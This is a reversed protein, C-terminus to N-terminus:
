ASWVKGGMALCRISLDYDPFGTVGGSGALSPLSQGSVQMFM